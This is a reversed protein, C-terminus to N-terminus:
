ESASVDLAVDFRGAGKADLAERVKLLRIVAERDKGAARNTREYNRLIEVATREIARGKQGEGSPQVITTGLVQALCSIVTSYSGALNYLKIAEPVRDNEQCQQAAKVLIHENFQQADRLKLLASGQEIVGSKSPTLRETLRSLLSFARVFRTGDPRFGGVLEEWAVGSNALVIIRRVQEWAIEMQERGVGDGQDSSLCICYVYQLAEKADM